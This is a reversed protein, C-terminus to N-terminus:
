HQYSQDQRENGPKQSTERQENINRQGEFNGKKTQSGDNYNSTKM